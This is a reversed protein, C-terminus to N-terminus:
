EFDDEEMSYLIKKVEEVFGNNKEQSECLIEIDRLKSFYFDREKELNENIVKLELIKQQTQQFQSNEFKINEKGFSSRSSSSSTSGSSSKKKVVVKKKQASELVGSERRREVADYKSSNSTQEYFRKMWQLFELNDQYKGKILKNVEITKKVGLQNFANQLIKFNSMYEYDFRANFNVRHLPIKGPYLADMMQCFLAGTCVQEIKEYGLDFNENIWKLLETRSVFYSTDVKGLTKNM